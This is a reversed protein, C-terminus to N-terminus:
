SAVRDSSRHQHPRRLHGPPHRPRAVAAIAPALNIAMVWAFLGAYAWLAWRWRRSALRGDPFLLIVLPFLAFAPVWLAGLLVAVSALPLGRHGPNYALAAYYGADPRLLFLLIFIILIWGIPNRPQRRAVVVGVGAYIVVIPFEPGTGLISLQHVMGSLVVTAALLLLALVGLVTATLPSALRFRRPAGDTAVPGQAGAPQTNEV